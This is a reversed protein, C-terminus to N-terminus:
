NDHSVSFYVCSNLPKGICQCIEAHSRSIDNPDQIPVCEPMIFQLKTGGTQPTRHQLHVGPKERLLQSIHCVM